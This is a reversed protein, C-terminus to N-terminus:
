VRRLVPLAPGAVPEIQNVKRLCVAVILVAGALCGPGVAIIHNLRQVSVFRVRTEHLFLDCGISQPGLM